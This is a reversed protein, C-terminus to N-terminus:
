QFNELLGITIKSEDKDDPGRIARLRLEANQPRGSKADIEKQITTFVVADMGLDALNFTFNALWLVDWLRGDYDQGLAAEAMTPTLRKHLTASIAVPLNFGVEKGTETVDVLTGDALAQCHTYILPGLSRNKPEPLPLQITKM